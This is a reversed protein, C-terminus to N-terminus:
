KVEKYKSEITTKEARRDNTIFLVGISIIQLIFLGVLIDYIIDERSKM